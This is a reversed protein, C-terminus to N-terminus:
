NNIPFQQQEVIFQRLESLSIYGEYLAKGIIVGYCGMDNLAVLENISRVGGSAILQLSPFQLRINQYLRLATGALLGDKSVDTCICYHAGKKTYDQLFEEIKQNSKEQWGHIAICGDLVDAGLIIREAGYRELWGAVIEPKKVALSGATVQADFLM